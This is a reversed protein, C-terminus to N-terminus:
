WCLKWACHRRSQGANHLLQQWRTPKQCREVNEIVRLKSGSLCIEGLRVFFMSWIQPTKTMSFFFFFLEINFNSIGGWRICTTFRTNLNEKIQDKKGWKKHRNLSAINSLKREIPKKYHLRKWINASKILRCINGRWQEFHFSIKRKGLSKKLPM